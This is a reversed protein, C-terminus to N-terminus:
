TTHPYKDTSLMKHTTDASSSSRRTTTSHMSGSMREATVMASGLMIRGKWNCTRGHASASRRAQSPQVQMGVHMQKMGAGGEVERICPRAQMGLRQGKRNAQMRAARDGLARLAVQM